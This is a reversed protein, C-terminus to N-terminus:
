GCQIQGVLRDGLEIHVTSLLCVDTHLEATTWYPQMDSIYNLLLM